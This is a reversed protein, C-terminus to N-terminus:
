SFFEKPLQRLLRVPKWGKPVLVVADLYFVYRNDRVRKEDVRIEVTHGGKEFARSGIRIWHYGGPIYEAWKIKHGLDQELYEKTILVPPEGDFSIKYPSFWDWDGGPRVAGPLTGALLIRYDGSKLIHFKYVLSYYAQDEPLKDAILELSRGQFFRADKTVVPNFNARSPKEGEVWVLAKEKSLTHFNFLAALAFLVLVLVGFSLYDNTSFTKQSKESM